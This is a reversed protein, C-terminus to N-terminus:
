TNKQTKETLKQLQKIKIEDTKLLCYNDLNISFISSNISINETIKKLIDLWSM